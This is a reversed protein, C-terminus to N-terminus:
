ACSYLPRNTTTVPYINNQRSLLGLAGGGGGGRRQSNYFMLAERPHCIKKGSLGSKLPRSVRRLVARLSCQVFSELKM